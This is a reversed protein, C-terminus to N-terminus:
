EGEKYTVAVPPLYPCDKSFREHENMDKIRNGKFLVHSNLIYHNPYGKGGCKVVSLLGKKHLVELHEPLHSDSTKLLRALESANLNKGTKPHVLFNSQWDVFRMLSMLVGVEVFTLRKKDIIDAWNSCYVRYFHPKKGSEKPPRGIKGRTRNNWYEDIVEGTELDIIRTFEKNGHFERVIRVRRDCYERKM